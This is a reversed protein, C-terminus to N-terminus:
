EAQDFILRKLPNIKISEAILISSFGAVLLLIFEWSHLPAFQFMTRMGPITLVIILFFLAGGCVLWFAKNPKRLTELMSHSHSRNAFILSLNGIVLSVFAFMRAEEASLNLNLAFTYVGAVVALIGLGQILGILLM